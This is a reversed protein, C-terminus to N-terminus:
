ELLIKNFPFALRALAKRHLSYTVLVFCIANCFKNTEDLYGPKNCLAYHTSSM